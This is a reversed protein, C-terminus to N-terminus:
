FLLYTKFSASMTGTGTWQIKYYYYRKTTNIYYNATADTATTATECLTWNTGDMSGYLGISGGVTGSIKTVIVHASVSAGYYWGSATLTSTSKSGANTVTDLTNLYSTTTMLKPKQAFASLGAFLFAIFLLKKM